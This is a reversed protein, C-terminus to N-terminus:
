DQAVGQNLLKVLASSIDMGPAAYMPMLAGTNLKRAINQVSECDEKTTADNYHLVLDFDHAIAYRKAAEEVDLFLIKMEKDSKKGIAKKAKEDNDEKERQVTKLAGDIDEANAPLITSSQKRQKLKDAKARLKREREQFPEVAKKLDEQFTKYKDYNKIVFTLNVIAIRTRPMETKAAKAPKQEKNEAWLRGAGIVVALAVVVSGMWLM